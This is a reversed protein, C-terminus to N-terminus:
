AKKKDYQTGPHSDAMDRLLNDADAEPMPGSVDVWDLEGSPKTYARVIRWQDNSPM